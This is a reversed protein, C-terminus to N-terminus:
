ERTHTQECKMWLMCRVWRLEQKNDRSMAKLLKRRPNFVSAMCSTRKSWNDSHAAVDALSSQIQNDQKREDSFSVTVLRRECVAENVRRSLLHWFRLGWSVVCLVNLVLTLCDNFRLVCFKERRSRHKSHKKGWFSFMWFCGVLFHYVFVSWRTGPLKRDGVGEGFVVLILRCAMIKVDALQWLIYTWTGNHTWVETNFNSLINHM